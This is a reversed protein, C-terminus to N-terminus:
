WVVGFEKALAEKVWVLLSDAGLKERIGVPICVLKLGDRGQYEQLIKEVEQEVETSFGGGVLIGAPRPNLTRLQVTVNQPSYNEADIISSFKFNHSLSKKWNYHSREREASAYSLFLLHHKHWSLEPTVERISHVEKPIRPALCRQIEEYNRPKRYQRHSTRLLVFRKCIPYNFREILASIEVTEIWCDKYALMQGRENKM